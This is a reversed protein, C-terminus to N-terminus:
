LNLDKEMPKFDAVSLAVFAIKKYTNQYSNITQSWWIDILSKETEQISWM